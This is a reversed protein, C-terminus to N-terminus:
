VVSKRDIPTEADAPFLDIVGGRVAIEGPEDIRDDAFYGITQLEAFFREPDLEAGVEVTPQDGEFADPPPFLGCAAEATTVLIARSGTRQRLRRLAAARKGAIAPSIPAPDGPLNDGPPVLVIDADPVAVALASAIAEARQEDLLVVIADGDAAALRAVTPGLAGLVLESSSAPKSTVAERAATDMERLM